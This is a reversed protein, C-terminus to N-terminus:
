LDDFLKMRSPIRDISYARVVERISLFHDYARIAKQLEKNLSLFLFRKKKGQQRYSLLVAELEKPLLSLAPRMHYMRNEVECREYWKTKNKGM